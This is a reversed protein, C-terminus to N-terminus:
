SIGKRLNNKGLEVNLIGANRILYQGDAVYQVYNEEVVWEMILLFMYKLIVVQILVNKDQLHHLYHLGTVSQVVIEQWKEM